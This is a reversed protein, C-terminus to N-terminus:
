PDFSSTEGILRVRAKFQRWVLLCAAGAILAFLSSPEPVIAVRITAESVPGLTVQSSGPSAPGSDWSGGRVRHGTIPPPPLLTLVTETWQGVDGEQDFTGYPGPSTALAGVPTLFNVPDTYHNVFMGNQFTVNDFNANNTGTASLVNSPTSNSRTPYSWYGAATGGGKYYAAKYWENDTPIVFHASTNRTINLTNTDGLAGNLSYSGTETVGPGEAAIPQGNELWNMFRATSGWSVYNVPFNEHGPTVSYNYSGDAGARNIGVAQPATAMFTNWVSYPDSAAVANLFVAYQAATVDYTGIQYNYGVAGSGNKDPLNGADGVPVFTMSTQGAPMNFVSIPGARCPIIQFPLFAVAMASLFILIRSM